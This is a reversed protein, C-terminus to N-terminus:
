EVYVFENTALLIHALDTWGTEAGAGTTGVINLGIAREEDTPSRGYLLRYARDIRSAAVNLGDGPIECELRLALDRARDLTFGHNLLFLAQPAVTSVTRKEDSADMNAADFLMAFSGRDWRATQFYLSRRMTGLDDAAPGGPATDLKGTVALMADRIAEAELRRPVYRSLLRNEPDAQLKEPTVAASQAYTASLVIRRHLSKISWGDAVFRSALWDLLEPHSPPESLMGFNNPTRVLGAGFHWQWVRNVLVRATLPNEPSAVWKALERRGSGSEIPPQETGAFFTPMQRPVVKGLRTYSGRIHIPVDQIGPFLGKPTGGEIAAEAYPPEPPLAAQLEDRQKILDTREADQEPTRSELKDLAKIKDNREDIQKVLADRREVYDRDALPIRNLFYNGGKTGIDKLIHTSYFIGALGYYDAQSLPDFKHDHCRACGLTLGMFAKGVTDVNDDVMDSVMKEKDADGRDWVGNSLFTTAVLGDPYYEKGGPDPLMDGAIQHIIFQDFPLDRNFADVVWNRYRWANIPECTKDRAKPDGDHYDAYRAIDLWHRGWRQGYEPAALLREVVIAGALPSDDDIFADIEEPTPPLGTLDFTVRRLWIRKEAAPAPALDSQEIRSLIFRDIDTQPWAPDRVDPVQPERVPQFAWWERHADTPAWEADIDTFGSDQTDNAPWPAGITVWKRLVDLEEDSLKGDPPMKPEDLYEIAKLLLSEQPTDSSVAPGSEGGKLILFRSDLRLGGERVDGSHCEYCREVLLPRVHKEFFEDNARVSFTGSLVIMLAAVNLVHRPDPLAARM